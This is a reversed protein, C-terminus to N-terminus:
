VSLRIYKEILGKIHENTLVYIEHNISRIKKDTFLNFEKMDRSIGALIHIPNYSIIRAKNNSICMSSLIESLIGRSIPNAIAEELTSPRKSFAQYRYSRIPRSERSAERDKGVEIGKKVKYIMEMITSPGVSRPILIPAEVSPSPEIPRKDRYRRMTLILPLPDTIESAVLLDVLYSNDCTDFNVITFPWWILFLKRSRYIKVLREHPKM